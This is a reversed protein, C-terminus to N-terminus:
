APLPYWLPPVCDCPDWHSDSSGAGIRGRVAEGATGGLEEQSLGSGQPGQHKVVGRLSEQATVRCRLGPRSM